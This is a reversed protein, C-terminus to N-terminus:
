VGRQMSMGLIHTSEGGGDKATRLGGRTEEDRTPTHMQEGGDTNVTRLGRKTVLFHTQGGGDTNATRM